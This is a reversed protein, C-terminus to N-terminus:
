CIKPRTNAVTRRKQKLRPMLLQTKTEKELMAEKIPQKKKYKTLTKEELSKFKKKYHLFNM